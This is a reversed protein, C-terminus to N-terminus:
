KNYEIEADPKPLIWNASSFTTAYNAWAGTSTAQTPIQVGETRNRKCYFFFQGEGQFEKWYEKTIELRLSSASLSSSLDTTIGRHQRVENLYGVATPYDNLKLLCEAAIYNMESRRILPIRREYQANYGAPQYYKMNMYYTTTADAPIIGPMSISVLRYDTAGTTVTNTNEFLGEYFYTTSTGSTTHGKRYLQNNVSAGTFWNNTITPLKFVSLAFLHETSFSFDKSKNDSVTLNEPKVWPFVSNGITMVEKAAELANTYDGQWLYTRAQLGKVAYYNLHFNRDNLFADASKKQGKLIPDSKLLTAADTLDQQIYGLVETGTSAKTVNTSLTKVYPIAPQTLSVVDNSAFIKFLELHIFARLALAEGKIIAYNNGTFKDKDADIHDLINNTNAIVNYLGNWFQDIRPKVTTLTYLASNSSNSILDKYDAASPEYFKTLADFFGFSLERGHLSEATMLTYSGLLADKYGQETKLLEDSKVKTRPEVDLWKECSTASLLIILSLLGTYLRKRM